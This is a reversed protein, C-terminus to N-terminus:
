PIGSWGARLLPGTFWGFCYLEMLGIWAAGAAWFTAKLLATSVSITSLTWAAWIAIPFTIDTALFAGYLSEITIPDVLSIYLFFKETWLPIKFFEFVTFPQVAIVTEVGSFLAIADFFSDVYGLYVFRLKKLMSPYTIFYSYIYLRSQPGLVILGVSQDDANQLSNLAM